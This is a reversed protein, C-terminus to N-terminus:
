ENVYITTLLECKKLLAMNALERAYLAYVNNIMNECSEVQEVTKCSNICCEILYYAAVKMVYRRHNTHDRDSCSNGHRYIALLTQREHNVM